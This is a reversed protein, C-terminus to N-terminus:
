DILRILLPKDPIDTRLVEIRRGILSADLKKQLYIAEESNNPYSLMKDDIVLKLADNDVNFSNLTGIVESWFPLHVQRTYEARQNCPRSM